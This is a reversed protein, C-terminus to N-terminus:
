SMYYDEMSAETPHSQLDTLIAQSPMGNRCPGTEQLYQEVDSSPRCHIIRCENPCDLGMGFGGTAILIRLIGKASSFSKLISQKVAPTTCATFMDSVALNRPGIPEVAKHVQHLSIDNM